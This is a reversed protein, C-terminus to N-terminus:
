REKIDYISYQCCHLMLMISMRPKWRSQIGRRRMELAHTIYVRHIELDLGEDVQGAEIAEAMITHLEPESISMYASAKMQAELIEGANRWMWGFGVLMAIDIVSAAVGRARRQRALSAIFM